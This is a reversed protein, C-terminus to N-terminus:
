WPHISRPSFSEGHWRSGGRAASNDSKSHKLYVQAGTLEALAPHSNLEVPLWEFNEAHQQLSGTFHNRAFLKALLQPRRVGKHVEVVSHIRRDVTQTFRKAIRRFGGAENFSHRTASITEDPCDIASGSISDLWRRQRLLLRISPFLRSRMRNGSHCCFGLIAAGQPAPPNSDSREFGMRQTALM